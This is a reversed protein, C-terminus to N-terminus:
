KTGAPQSGYDRAVKRRWVVLGVVALILVAAAVVVYTL